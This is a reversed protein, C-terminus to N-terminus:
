WAPSRRSRPPRRRRRRAWARGPPRCRCTRRRRAARRRATAPAPRGCRRVRPGPRGSRTSGRPAGHHGDVPVERGLVERSGQAPVHAVAQRRGRLRQRRLVEVVSAPALQELLDGPQRLVVGGPGLAADERGAGALDGLQGLGAAQDLEARARRLLGVQQQAGQAVDPAQLGVHGHVDADVGDLPRQRAQGGVVRGELHVADDGVELAVEVPQGLVARAEDGEEAARDAVELGRLARKRAATVSESSGPSV